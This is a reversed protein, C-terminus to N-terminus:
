NSPFRIGKNEMADFVTRLATLARSFDVGLNSASTMVRGSNALANFAQMARTPDLARSAKRLGDLVGVAEKETMM